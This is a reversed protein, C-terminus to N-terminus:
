SNTLVRPQCYLFTLKWTRWMELPLKWSGFRPSVMASTPIPKSIQCIQHYLFFGAIGAKKTEEHMRPPASGPARVTKRLARPESPSALAKPTWGRQESLDEANPFSLGSVRGMYRIPRRGSEQASSAELTSVSSEGSLQPLKNPFGVRCLRSAVLGGEGDHGRLRAGLSKRASQRFLLCRSRLFM